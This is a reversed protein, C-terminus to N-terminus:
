HPYAPCPAGCCQAANDGSYAAQASPLCCDGMSTAPYPLLLPAAGMENAYLVSAM